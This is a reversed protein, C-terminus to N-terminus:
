KNGRQILDIVQDLHGADVFGQWQWLDEARYIDGYKILLWIGPKGVAGRWDPRTLCWM